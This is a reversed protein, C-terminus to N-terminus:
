FNLRQLVAVVNFLLYLLVVYKVVAALNKTLTIKMAIM